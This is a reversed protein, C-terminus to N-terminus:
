RAHRHGRRLAASFGDIAAGLNSQQLIKQTSAAVKAGTYQSHLADLSAGLQM